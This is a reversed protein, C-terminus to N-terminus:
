LQQQAFIHPRQAAPDAVGIRSGSMCEVSDVPILMEEGTVVATRGEIQHALDVDAIGKPLEPPLPLDPLLLPPPSQPPIQDVGGSLRKGLRPRSIDGCRIRPSGVPIHYVSRRLDVVDAEWGVRPQIHTQSVIPIEPVPRHRREYLKEVDAVALVDPKHFVFVGPSHGADVLVEHKRNQGGHADSELKSPSPSTPFLDTQM